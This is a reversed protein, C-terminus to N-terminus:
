QGPGSTIIESSTGAANPTPVPMQGNSSGDDEPAGFPEGVAELLVVKLVDDLHSVCILEL